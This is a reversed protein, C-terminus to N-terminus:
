KSQCVMQKVKEPNNKYEKKLTDNGYNPNESGKKHNSMKEKWKYYEDGMREKPSIGFQSNNKGKHTQSIIKKINESHTYGSVGEGGNTINCKAQDIEKYKSITKIELEFANKESLNEYIKRVDCNYKNYYNLFYKNRSDTCVKKYRDNCGKGVYFVYNTDINYWEYIYFKNGIMKNEGKLDEIIQFSISRNGVPNGNVESM